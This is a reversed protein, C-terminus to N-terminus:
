SEEEMDALFQLRCAGALTAVIGNPSVWRQQKNPKTRHWGVRASITPRGSEAKSRFSRPASYASRTPRFTM